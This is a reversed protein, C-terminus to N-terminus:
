MVSDLTERTIFQPSEYSRVTTTTQSKITSTSHKINENIPADSRYWDQAKGIKILDLGAQNISFVKLGLLLIEKNARIGAIRAQALQLPSKYINLINKVFNLRNDTYDYKDEFEHLDKLYLNLENIGGEEFTKNLKDRSEDIKKKYFDKEDTLVNLMKNLNIYYNSAKKELDILYILYDRLHNLRNNKDEILSLETELNTSVAYKLQKAFSLEDYLFIDSDGQFVIKDYGEITTLVFGSNRGIDSAKLIIEKKIDEESIIKPDYIETENKDFFNPIFNFNWRFFLSLIGGIIVFLILAIGMFFLWPHKEEFEVIYEFFGVSGDKILAKISSPKIDFNDVNIDGDNLVEAEVTIKKDESNTNNLNTNNIDEPM